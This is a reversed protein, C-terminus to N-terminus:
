FCGVDQARQEAQIQEKKKKADEKKRLTIEPMKDDLYKLERETFVYEMLKRVGVMVVLQLRLLTFVSQRLLWLFLLRVMLPFIISTIKIEKVVCLVVFCGLQFATFLHVRKIPVHRLYVLDPQYKLPMFLLLLRDVM